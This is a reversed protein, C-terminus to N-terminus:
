EPTKQRLLAPWNQIIHIAPPKADPNAVPVPLLLRKGDPSVSVPSYGEVAFRLPTQFLKEPQGVSLAGGENSVSVSYAAGGSLFFIKKGDPSWRGGGGRVGTFSVQRKGAGSPYEVLYIDQQGSENTVYLVLRGDPSFQAAGKSFPSTLFAVPETFSGDPKRTAAYIDPRENQSARVILLTKGDPSWASPNDNASGNTVQTAKTGGDVSQVFVIRNGGPKQSAFAIEKGTPSWVPWTDSEPGFTIRTRGGSATDITWIDANDRESAAYLVRKGDPSLSVSLAGAQPEGFLGMPKGDLGFWGFRTPRAAADDGDVWSLSRDQSVSANAGANVVPVPEGIPKWTSTSIPVAWLGPVRPSRQFVIHGSSAFVPYGGTLLTESTQTELDILEVTQNFRNGNSALVLRKGPAPLFNPSYFTGVGSKKIKFERVEGGSASVEHVGGFQTFAVITKGDPSWAAGRFEGKLRAITFPSVGNVSLKVLQDAIAFGIQTSDPSWFPGDANDSGPLARPQEDALDRLWLKEQAVYVIYKGNPSIAARQAFDNESLNAAPFSFARHPLEQPKPKNLLWTGAAGIVLAAAIAPIPWRPTSSAAAQAPKDFSADGIDRLRLKRDRQLCKEILAIPASKPLKALDIEQKLVAALVDSVTEGDFLRKATLMEYFVVGFAWIDTRKDVNGGRAQEPSMYAATGLILGAETPRMTLTPSNSSAPQQPGEDIAKALGFDLLKVVGAPTIKVNAPKLDRHIINKEHAAELASAIQKAIVVTEAVDIAGQKIRDELTPGDVLEMILATGELGYVQAINPHNLAALARAEREFRALREPDHALSDPLVKVAVDRQLKADRAKYVVGMGGEGIPGTITYPGLKSGPALPM